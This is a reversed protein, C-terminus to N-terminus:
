KDYVPSNFIRIMDVIFVFDLYFELYVVYIPPKEEYAVRAVCFFLIYFCHMLMWMKYYYVFALVWPTETDETPWFGKSSQESKFEIDYPQM